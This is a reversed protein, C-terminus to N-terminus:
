AIKRFRELSVSMFFTIIACLALIHPLIETFSADRLVLGRMMAVMHTAPLALGVYRMVPPLSEVPWIYGSLFISPILFLQVLQMAQPQTTSQVSIFLGIALVAIMYLTGTGIVTALDGRIPVDFGYRMLALIICLEVVGVVLYPVLKGLLLGLANIPTVLLQELTGQERERVLSTSTFIAVFFLAISFLGPIMYNATRASPNFLTITQVALGGANAGAHAESLDHITVDTAVGAVAALAQTAVQPDSGDVLFLVQAPEGQARKNHYDSPIVLAGRARGAVIEARATRGDELVREFTFTGTSRLKDVLMRSQVSKDQDVLITPMRRVNLDIFGFVALLFLPQMIAAIITPRDRSIHRLEKTLVAIFSNWM